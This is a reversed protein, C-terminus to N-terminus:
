EQDSKTGRGSMMAGLDAFPRQVNRAPAPEAPESVMGDPCGEAHLPALPLAALIEDEVADRLRLGGDEDLLISDFPDALDRTAAEDPAVTLAVDVDVPWNVPGFCRQCVLPLSGHIEIHVVPFSEPGTGIRVCADLSQGDAPGPSLDASARPLDRPRLRTRFTAGQASMEALQSPGIREAFM